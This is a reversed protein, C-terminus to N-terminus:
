RYVAVAYGGPEPENMAHWCARDFAVVAAIAIDIKRPSDTSEKTIVDGGRVTKTVANRLHRALRLDGDHTLPMGADEEDGGAVAAYFRSCAPQMRATQNTPFEVVVEGYAAEWQEIEDAWGPPDPCLELVEYREMTEAVVRKVDSRPVKWNPGADDPREWADVVFLHGDLTCGVLATSDRKYSGDFGLVVQTGKPPAGDAVRAEWAGEPLWHGGGRAFAGLWYRRIEHIPYKKRILSDARRRLDDDSLWDAPTADCLAEHLLDPDISGDEATIKRKPDTGYHLFYFSPDVVEGTAIKEGDAVMIGLLSEPDADDPTTINLELCNARKEMGQFLVLHVRRKRPSDWEHIEDAAGATPLGGDNTGAVAAVRYLKGRGETLLIETDFCEVFPALPAPADETGTAMQKAADGFLKDAQDWSGAAVPLNPSRRMVPGDPTPLSPGALLFLMLAAIFETKASGKPCIILVRAVIYACAVIGGVRVLHNPDYEFIRWAARKGWEPVRYPEGLLDGEGHVLMSEAWEIFMGGLSPPLSGDPLVSQPTERYPAPITRRPAELLTM